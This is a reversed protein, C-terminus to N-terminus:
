KPVIYNVFEERSIKGNSDKDIDVIVQKAQDLSLSNHPGENKFIIVLEDATLWRNKDSDLKDFLLYIESRLENEFEPTFASAMREEITLQCGKILM